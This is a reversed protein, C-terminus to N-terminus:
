NTADNEGQIKEKQQQIVSILRKALAAEEPSGKVTKSMNMLINRVPASEYIRASLGVTGAGLTAAGAGGFIDTLFSGAIFPVAQQGTPTVLASQPARNTLSLARQLGEIKELDDGKFFIGTSQSLKKLQTSFKEPSVITGGGPTDSVSDQAAKNLLAIRANARGSPTLNKYLENIESPKKSTLMGMVVEPTADGRKLTSKLAGMDLEDIMSALRNNAISWKNIDRRDGTSKIFEGMDKRLPGYLKNTVKEAMSRISTMDPASYKEGLIKRQLEISALDKNQINSKFEKLDNILTDVEKTGADKSLKAIQDDVANTANKVPVVGNKSLRDIVDNKLNSYKTLETGRKSILDAMVDDSAKVANTAGFDDLVNKVAAIRQQQQAARMGGTGAYPIREGIMQASKGAFTSPPVVDSTMVKIGLKEADAAAQRGVPQTAAQTKLGGIKAGAIGGALGAAIQGPIGVGEEQAVQSAVGSGLGGAIQAAPQAALQAGVGAVQPLKTAAQMAGGLLAGGGATTMARTGAGVIREQENQPSPLGLANSINQGIKTLTVPDYDSGTAMRVAGGIAQIVPDTIMGVGSTVGEIGHRATLGTQRLLEQGIGDKNEPEKSQTAAWQEPSMSVAPASKPAQKSQSDMWEEPSM